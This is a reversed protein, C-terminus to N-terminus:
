QLASDPIGAESFGKARLRCSDCVGCPMRGGKYCSWTLHIPVGLKVALRVIQAKSMRLLPTLVSMGKGEVGRKTGLLAVRRFAKYFNPRCDPYGSFDLANAGIVIARAGLADAASLAFSLFLTNRGPVYTSPISGKGIASPRHHPLPFKPNTLSSGGWPLSLRVVQFPCRAKCAINRASALERHHRQGYDFILAAPYYGKSKAWYLCTASDLGGSLLIIAKKM